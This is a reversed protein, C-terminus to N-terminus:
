KLHKDRINTDEVITYSRRALLYTFYRETRPTHRLQFNTYKHTGTNKYYIDTTIVIIYLFPLKTSSTGKYILFISTSKWSSMSSKGIIFSVVDGIELWFGGDEVSYLFNM